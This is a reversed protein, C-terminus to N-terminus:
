LSSPLHHHHSGLIVDILWLDFAKAGNLGKLDATDQV